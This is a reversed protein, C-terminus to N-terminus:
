SKEQELKTLRADIEEWRKNRGADYAATALKDDLKILRKGLEWAFVAVGFSSVSIGIIALAIVTYELM